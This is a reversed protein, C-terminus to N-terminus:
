SGAYTRQTVKDTAFSDLHYALSKSFNRYNYKDQCLKQGREGMERAEEPHDILYQMAQHWGEKDGYPIKFGIREKEVDISYHDNDTLIVPKAMAMAELLVTSGQASDYQKKLPIVVGLANYYEKRLFGTSTISPKLEKDIYVNSPLNNLLPDNRHPDGFIRLNFDIGNFLNILMEYDRNCYGVALFYNQDSVQTQTAIYKAFFDYDVGWTIYNRHRSPVKKLMAKELTKEGMFIIKDLGKFLIRRQIAGILKQKKSYGTNLMSHQSMAIIPKNYLHMIKLLSLFLTYPGWPAFIIDIEKSRKLCDLQVKLFPINLKEGIKNVLSNKDNTTTTVEFGFEPFVDYGWMFSHRQCEGGQAMFEQIEELPQGTIQFLKKM